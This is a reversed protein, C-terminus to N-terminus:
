PADVGGQVRTASDTPLRHTLHRALDGDVQNGTAEARRLARGSLERAREVDGLSLCVEVAVNFLMVDHIRTPAEHALWPELRALAAGPDGAGLDLEAQRADLYAHFAFTHLDPAAAAEDYCARAGATDGRAALLVGLYTPPICSYLTPSGSRALAVARELHRHASDVDGRYFETLGTNATHLAEADTDGSLRTIEMGREGLALAGDFDGRMTLFWQLGLTAGSEVTGAEVSRALRISRSLVEIAEDPRDLFLLVTGSVSDADAEVLVSGEARALRAAHEAAQLGAELQGLSLRVRGLGVCLAAVGPAPGGADLPVDLEAVVDALRAAGAAAEGRRHQALAILGEVNLRAAVDGLDQYGEAARVLHEVAEDYRATTVEVRGIRDLAAAMAAADGVEEALGRGREYLGLAEAQSHMEAAVDGALLCFPVARALLGGAELHRSVEAARRRAAAPRHELGEGVERHLRRRRAPSLGAHIAQQTLSHDFAYHDGVTTLLGSAVAEDLAKELRHDAPVDDPDFVEGIVSATELLLQAAGSLRSVREFIADSVSPPADLATRHCVWAGDVRSLDGRDVLSGLLEVTFFPNGDCHRHVLDALEASVEDDDLHHTILRATDDRALRGVGIARSRGERRLSHALRRVPHAAGVEADRYTGLLLVRGTTLHRALYTLLDVSARDAWHLDDLLVAVPQREALARVFATAARHLRAVPDDSPGLDVPPLADPLLPALAPWREAVEARVAAPAADYLRGFAEVVPAFPTESQQEYCRGTAVLFGRQRAHLTAEQALRTKGIGPEGALLVVDSGGSTVADIATVIAALEDDRGLLPSVPTAGLYGGLPPPETSGPGRGAAAVLEGLEDDTLGLAGALLRVTSPYPATNVGRELNSVTREGLGARDALEAQTLGAAERHRRLAAAFGDTRGVPDTQRM